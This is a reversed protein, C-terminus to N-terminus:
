GIVKDCGSPRSTGMRKTSSIEDELASDTLDMSYGWPRLCVTHGKYDKDKFLKWWDGTNNSVSSADDGFTTDYIGCSLDCPDNHFDSDYSARELCTPTYNDSACIYLRNSPGAAQAPVAGVLMVLVSAMLMGSFRVVTTKFKM